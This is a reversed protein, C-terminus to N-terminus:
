WLINFAKNWICKGKPTLPLRCRKTKNLFYFKVLVPKNGWLYIYIYREDQSQGAKPDVSYVHLPPLGEYVLGSGTITLTQPSWSDIGLPGNGWGVYGPPCLTTTGARWAPFRHRPVTCVLIFFSLFGLHSRPWFWPRLFCTDGSDGRKHSWWVHWRFRRRQSTIVSTLFTRWVGQSEMMPMVLIEDTMSAIVPTVLTGMGRTVGDCADSTQSKMALTM